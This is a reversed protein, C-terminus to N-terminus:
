LKVGEVKAELWEIYKELTSPIRYLPFPNVIGTEKRFLQILKNKDSM